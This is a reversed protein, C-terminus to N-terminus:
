PRSEVWYTQYDHHGPHDCPNKYRNFIKGPMRSYLFDSIIEEIM